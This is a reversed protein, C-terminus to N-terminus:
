AITRGRKRNEGKEESSALKGKCLEGTKKREMSSTKLSLSRKKKRTTRRICTHLFLLDSGGRQGANSFLLQSVYGKEM